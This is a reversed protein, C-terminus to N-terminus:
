ARSSWLPRNKALVNIYLLIIKANLAVKRLAKEALKARIVRGDLLAAPNFRTGFFRGRGKLSLYLRLHFTEARHSLLLIGPARIICELPGDRVLVTTKTV